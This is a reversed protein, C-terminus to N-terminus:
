PAVSTLLSEIDVHQMVAKTVRDAVAEQVDPDSALPKMTSVYRDTDGILDSSWAAVASLPTLVAAVIILLVAFFPRVWHRQGTPRRRELEAVRARLEAIERADDGNM